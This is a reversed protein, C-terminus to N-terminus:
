NAGIRIMTRNPLLIRIATGRDILLETGKEIQRYEPGLLWTWNTPPRVRGGPAPVGNLFIIGKSSGKLTFHGRSVWNDKKADGCTGVVRQDSNPIIQTSEFAPDLYELKGGEQRGIVLVKQPALELVCQRDLFPTDAVFCPSLVEQGGNPLTDGIRLSLGTGGSFTLSLSSNGTNLETPEPTIIGM